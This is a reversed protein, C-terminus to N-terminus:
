NRFHLRLSSESSQMFREGCVQFAGRCTGVQCRLWGPQACGWIAAASPILRATTLSPIVRPLAPFRFGETM